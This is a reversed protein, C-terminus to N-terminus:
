IGDMYHMTDSYRLEVVGVKGYYTVIQRLDRYEMPTRQLPVLPFQVYKTDNTYFVMRNKGKTPAIDKDLWKVPQIDLPKGNQKYAITNETLYDLVSRNGATSVIRDVLIAYQDPPVLLKDPVVARATQKWANTLGTNISDRIEDPTCTDWSKAAQAVKVSPQNLLGPVDLTKSGMYVQRDVNLQYVQNMADLKQTDIPRGLQQAAALEFVTWSLQRAWPTLPLGTKTISLDIGPIVNTSNSIWSEGDEGASTPAAFSTNSFSSVEDAISVDTRLKIDRSWTYALLPMNLTPDYRELQGVLFAGANSVTNADITFM